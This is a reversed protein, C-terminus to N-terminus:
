TTAYLHGVVLNGLAMEHVVVVDDLRCEHSQCAGPNTAANLEVPGLVVTRGSIHGNVGADLLIGVTRNADPHALHLLHEVLLSHSAKGQTGTTGIQFDFATEVVTGIHRLGEQPPGIGSHIHIISILTHEWRVDIGHEIM